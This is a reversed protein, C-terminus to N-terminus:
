KAMSVGRYMRLPIQGQNVYATNSIHVVKDKLKKHFSLPRVEGSVLELQSLEEIPFYASFRNRAMFSPMCINLVERDTIKDNLMDNWYALQYMNVGFVRSVYDLDDNERVVYPITTYIPEAISFTENKLKKLFRIQVDNNKEMTDLLTRADYLCRLPFVLGYGNDSKPIYSKKYMPNLLRLTDINVEFLRAIDKLYIKHDFIEIRATWHLDPHLQKIKHGYIKYDSFIYSVAIFEPIYKATETPLHAQLDWYSRSGALELAQDVRGPGCNYAAIALTWDDYRKHLKKLYHIAAHTSRHPDFREDVSHYRRLGLEKATGPMIQWLGQAGMHSGVRPRLHSEVITMYKLQDPMNHEALIAEITPFYLAMRNVVLQTLKPNNKYRLIKQEVETTYRVDVISSLHNASVSSYTLLMILSLLAIKSFKFDYTVHRSM